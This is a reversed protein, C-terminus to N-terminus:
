PKNELVARSVVSWSYCGAANLRYVAKELAAELEAIRAQATALATKLAATTPEQPESKYHNWLATPTAFEEGCSCVVVRREQDLAYHIARRM